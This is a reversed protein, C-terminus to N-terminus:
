FFPHESNFIEMKYESKEINCELKHHMFIDVSHVVPLTCKSLPVIICIQFDALIKMKMHFYYTTFKVKFCWKSESIHARSNHSFFM